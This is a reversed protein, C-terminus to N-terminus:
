YSLLSCSQAYANKEIGRKSYNEDFLTEPSQMM